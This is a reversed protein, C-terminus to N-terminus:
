IHYTSKTQDVQFLLQSLKVASLGVNADKSSQHLQFHWCNKFGSLMPMYIFTKIITLLKFAIQPEPTHDLQIDALTQVRSSQSTTIAWGRSSTTTNGTPIWGLKFENLEWFYEKYNQFCWDQTISSFLHSRISLGPKQSLVFVTTVPRHNAM